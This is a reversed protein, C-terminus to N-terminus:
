QLASLCQHSVSGSHPKLYREFAEAKARSRFAVAADIRWPRHESTHPVQGNNHSKLRASIDRTLGVYHRDEDTDSVLIYVYHFGTM